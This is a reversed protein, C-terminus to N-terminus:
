RTMPRVGATAATDTVLALDILRHVDAPRLTAPVVGSRALVTAAATDDFVVNQTLYTRYPELMRSVRLELPSPDVLPEVAADLLELGRV